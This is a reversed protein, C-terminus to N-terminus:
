RPEFTGRLRNANAAFRNADAADEKAAERECPVACGLKRAVQSKRVAAEVGM